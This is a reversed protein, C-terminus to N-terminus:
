ALAAQRACGFCQDIGTRDQTPARLPGPGTPGAHARHGSPGHRPRDTWGFPFLEPKGLRVKSALPLSLDREALAGSKAPRRWFM